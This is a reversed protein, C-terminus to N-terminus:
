SWWAIYYSPLSGPGTRAPSTRTSRPTRQIHQLPLKAFTTRPRSFFVPRSTATFIMLFYSAGWEPLLHVLLLLDQELALDVDHFADAVGVDDLEVVVEGVVLVDVEDEFEEGAAFEVLFDALLLDVRLFLGSAHDARDDVGDAVQVLAADDV